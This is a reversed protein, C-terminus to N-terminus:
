NVTPLADWCGHNNEFIRSSKGDAWLRRDEGRAAVSDYYFSAADQVPKAQRAENRLQELESQTFLM